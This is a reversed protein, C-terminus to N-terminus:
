ALPRYSDAAFPLFLVFVTGSRGPQHNSRVRLSGQHRAVIDQTVWLGLGTGGLEKTTFFPEFIKKLVDPGIGTGTDAVTIAVRKNRFGSQYRNPKLCAELRDSRV